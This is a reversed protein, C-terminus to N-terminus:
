WEALLRPTSWDLVQLWTRGGVVVWPRGTILCVDLQPEPHATLTEGMRLQARQIGGSFITITPRYKRASKTMSLVAIRDGESAVDIVAGPVQATSVPEEGGHLEWLNLNGAADSSWYRGGAHDAFILKASRVLKPLQIPRAEDGWRLLGKPTSYLPKGDALVTFLRPESAALKQERQSFTEGNAELEYRHVSGEGLRRVWFTDSQEFDPWVLLPRPTSIAPAKQGEKQGARLTLVQGKAVVLARADGFAVVNLPEPLEIRGTQIAAASGRIQPPPITQSAEFTELSAQTIRFFVRGSCAVLQPPLKPM